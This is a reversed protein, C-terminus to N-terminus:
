SYNFDTKVSGLPILAQAQPRSAYTRTAAETRSIFEPCFQVSESHTLAAPSVLEERVIVEDVSLAIARQYSTPIGAALSELAASPIPEIVQVQSVEGEQKVFCTALGFVCYNVKDM